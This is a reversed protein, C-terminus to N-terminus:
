TEREEGRSGLFDAGWKLGMMGNKWSEMMGNDWDELEKVENAV